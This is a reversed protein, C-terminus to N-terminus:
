HRAANRGWRYGESARTQKEPGGLHDSAKSRSRRIGADLFCSGLIDFRVRFDNAKM